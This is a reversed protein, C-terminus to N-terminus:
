YKKMKAPAKKKAKMQKAPSKKMSAKKNESKKQFVVRDIGEARNRAINSEWNATNMANAANVADKKDAETTKITPIVRQLRLRMEEAKANRRELAKGTLGRAAESGETAQAYKKNADANMKEAFQIEREARAKNLTVLGRTGTQDTGTYGRTGETSYITRSPNGSVPNQPASTTLKTETTIQPKDTGVLEDSVNVTGKSSKFKNEISPNKKVAAAWKNYAETGPKVFKTVKEQAEITYDKAVNFKRVDDTGGLAKEQLSKQKAIELEKRAANEADEKSSFGSISNKTQLFASPLGNGTQLFPARGPKMNFAM